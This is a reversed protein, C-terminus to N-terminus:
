AGADQGPLIGKEEQQKKAARLEELLAQIEDQIESCQSVVLCGGKALYGISGM